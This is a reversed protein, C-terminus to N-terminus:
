AESNTGVNWALPMFSCISSVDEAYWLSCSCKKCGVVGNLGFNVRLFIPRKWRFPSRVLPSPLILLLAFRFYGSTLVTTKGVSSTSARYLLISSVTYLVVGLIALCDLVCSTVHISFVGHPSLTELNREEIASLVREM